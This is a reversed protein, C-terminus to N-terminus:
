PDSRSGSENGSTHELQHWLHDAMADLDYKASWGWDRRSSSDDLQSPWSAILETLAPDVEFNVKASKWRAGIAQAIDLASPAMAQVNYVRRSLQEAPASLLLVVARLVDQVYILSPCVDPKVRFTFRGHQATEVFARSAYASAAGAPAHPSVVVPLRLSRFDLGHKVHYYHGLREVALKTVGYLGRAV